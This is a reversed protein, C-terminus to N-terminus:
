IWERYGCQTCKIEVLTYTGYAIRGTTICCNTQLCKNCADKLISGEYKAETRVTHIKVNSRSINARKM